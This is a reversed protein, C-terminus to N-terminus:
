NGYKVMVWSGFGNLMFAGLSQVMYKQAQAVHFYAAVCLVVVLSIHGFYFTRRRDQMSGGDWARAVGKKASGRPRVFFLLAIAATLASLGCQVDLDQIRKALLSGFEPHSSQVFFSLYLIAHGFLLPSIVVRGFLRHYPTLTGQPVTTLFSFISPASPKSTSIYAVPSILVQFPIQSLAVHGLAKTLHLYDNGSNWVSLDVLWSLWLGCVAYQKRTELWGTVPPRNWWSIPPRPQDAGHNAQSISKWGQYTVRLLMIVLMVSWQAFAGRLDLLERRRITEEESLSVFQWPWSLVM